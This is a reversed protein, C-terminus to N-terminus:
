WVVRLGVEGAHIDQGSGFNGNYGAFFRAENSVPAEINAGAVVSDAVPTAGSASGAFTVVGTTETFTVTRDREFEHAWGASATLRAGRRGVNLDFAGRAGLITRAADVDVADVEAPVLVAGSLPFEAYADQDIRAGDARAYPTLIFANSIKWDYGLEVSAFIQTAEVDRAMVAGLGM